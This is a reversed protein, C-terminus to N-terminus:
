AAMEDDFELELAAPDTAMQEPTAQRRQNEKAKADVIFKIMEARVPTQAFQEGGPMELVRHQLAPTSLEDYRAVTEESGLAFKEGAQLENPQRPPRRFERVNGREDTLKFGDHRLFKLAIAPPMPVPKGFEFKFPQVAGDVIQEHTRPGSDHTATTDLVYLIQNAKAKAEPKAAATAENLKSTM